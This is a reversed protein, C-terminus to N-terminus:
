ISRACSQSFGWRLHASFAPSMFRILPVSNRGRIFSAAVSLIPFFVFVYVHFFFASNNGLDHLWSIKYPPLSTYDKGDSTGFAPFVGEERIHAYQGGSIGGAFTERRFPASVAAFLVSFKRQLGRRRSCSCLSFLVHFEFHNAFNLRHNSSFFLPNPNSIYM